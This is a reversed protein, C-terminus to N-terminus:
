GASDLRELGSVSCAARPRGGMQVLPHPKLKQITQVFPYSAGTKVVCFRAADYDSLGVPVTGGHEYTRGVALELISTGSERFKFGAKTAVEKALRTARKVSAVRGEEPRRPIGVCSRTMKNQM